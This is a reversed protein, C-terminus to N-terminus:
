ANVEDKMNATGNDDDDGTRTIEGHLVAERQERWEEIKQAIVSIVCLLYM